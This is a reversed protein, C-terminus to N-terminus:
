SISYNKSKNECDLDTESNIEDIRDGEHSNGDGVVIVSGIESDTNEDSSPNADSVSEVEDSDNRYVRLRHKSM